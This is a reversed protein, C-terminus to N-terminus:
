PVTVDILRDPMMPCHSIVRGHGLETRLPRYPPLVVVAISVNDRVMDLTLSGLCLRGLHFSAAV